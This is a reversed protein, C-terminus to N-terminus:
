EMNRYIRAVRQEAIRQHSQGPPVFRYNSKPKRGGMPKPRARRGKGIKVRVVVYGKKAKYGLRRARPLNSPRDVRNISPEKLWTRVKNKYVDDATKYEKELTNQIYNYAGM